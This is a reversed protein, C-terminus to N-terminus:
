LAEVTAALTHVPNAAGTNVLTTSISINSSAIASVVIMGSFAANLTSVRITGDLDAAATANMPILVKSQANGDNWAVAPALSDTPEADGATTIKIYWPVRYLGGPVASALVTAALSASIGTLSCFGLTGQTTGAGASVSSVGAFSFKSDFNALNYWSRGGTTGSVVITHNAATVGRIDLYLAKGTANNDEFRLGTGSQDVRAKTSIALTKQALTDTTNRGVFQDSTDPLTWTTTGAASPAQIQIYNTTSSDFFILRPGAVNMDAELTLVGVDPAVESVTVPSVFTWSGNIREDAGPSCWHQLRWRSLSADYIAIALDNQFLSLQDQNSAFWRNVASAAAHEHPLTITLTGVNHMFVIRGDSGSALGRVLLAPNTASLQIYTAEAMNLNSISAAFATATAVFRTSGNVNLRVLPNTTPPGGIAIQEVRVASAFTASAFAFTASTGTAQRNGAFILNMASQGSTGAEVWFSSASAYTRLGSSGDGNTRHVPMNGAFRMDVTSAGSDGFNLTATTASAEWKQLLDDSVGGAAPLDLRFDSYQLETFGPVGGGSFGVRMNSYDIATASATPVTFQFGTWGSVSNLPMASVPVILWSPGGSDCNFAASFTNTLCRASVSVVHGTDVGPDTKSALQAIFTSVSGGEIGRIFTATTSDSIDSWLNATGATTNVWGGLTIDSAPRSVDVFSPAGVKVHLKATAATTGMGLRTNTEDFAAVDALGWYILGKTPDTTSSFRLNQSPGTGGHAVQGGSRGLLVLYIDSLKVDTILTGSGDPVQGQQVRGIGRSLDRLFYDIRVAAQRTQLDQISQIEPIGTWDRM